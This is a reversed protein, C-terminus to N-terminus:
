TRSCQRILELGEKIHGGMLLQQAARRKFDLSHGASTLQAIELYAEAAEAPRGANVLADALGRKLDVLEAGRAPALELARRYFGAARDFALASAAKKAALAAHSAARVREGAGLYHEFLAEPDDIGRGELSQALRRHIQIGKESRNDPSRRAFADSLALAHGARRRFFTRGKALSSPLEDVSFDGSTAVEPHNSTWGCGTCFFQRAGSPM